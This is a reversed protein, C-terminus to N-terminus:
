SVEGLSKVVGYQDHKATYASLMHYLSDANQETVEFIIGTGSMVRQYTTKAINMVFDSHLHNSQIAINHLSGTDGANLTLTFPKDRAVLDDIIRQAFGINTQQIETM